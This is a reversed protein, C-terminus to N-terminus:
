APFCRLWPSRLRTKSYCTCGSLPMFVYIDSVNAPVSVDWVVKCLLVIEVSKGKLFLLDNCPHQWRVVCFNQRICWVCPNYCSFVLTQFIIKYSLTMILVPKIEGRGRESGVVLSAGGIKERWVIVIGAKVTDLTSVKEAYFMKVCNMILVLLSCLM